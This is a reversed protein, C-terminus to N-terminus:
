SNKLHKRPKYDELKKIHKLFIIRLDKDIKILEKKVNNSIIVNYKSM